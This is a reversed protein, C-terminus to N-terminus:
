KARKPKRGRKRPKWTKLEKDDFCLYKEDDYYETMTGSLQRSRIKVADKKLLSILRVLM